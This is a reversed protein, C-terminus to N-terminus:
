NGERSSITIQWQKHTHAQNNGSDSSKEQNSTFNMNSRWTDWKTMEMTMGVDSITRTAYQENQIPSSVPGPRNKSQMRVKKASM